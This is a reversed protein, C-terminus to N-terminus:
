RSIRMCSNTSSEKECHTRCSEPNDSFVKPPEESGQCLPNDKLEFNEHLQQHTIIKVGGDTNELSRNVFFNMRLLM